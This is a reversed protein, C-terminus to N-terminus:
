FGVARKTQLSIIQTERNGYIESLSVPKFYERNFGLQKSLRNAKSVELDNFEYKTLLRGPRLLASDVNKIDTNFTCIIQMNLVDSLLGDSINLLTSVANNHSSDRSIIAKEADEIILVQGRAQSILLNIFGSDSLSEAMGSPIFIVDKKMHSIIHRLYNTKGTGPKGYLFHLGRKSTNDLNKLFDSDFSFLDDNYNKTLEIETKEIDFSNLELGDQTAIILQVKPRDNEIINFRHAEDKLYQESLLEQKRYLYTMYNNGASIMEGGEFVVIINPHISDRDRADYNNERIIKLIFDKYFDCIENMMELGNVNRILFENPVENFYSLFLKKISIEGRDDLVNILSTESVETSEASKLIVNEM